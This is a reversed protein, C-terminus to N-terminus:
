DAADRDWAGSKGGSKHVLAVSEIRIGRELAKAMDYVTLAAVAAATMAEMEIGTRGVCRAEAVLVVLGEAVEVEASVDVYTLPLPHALPILEGTRKAAAIGALRAPGLVDGKSADGRIVAAATEPSMRLRAEAVARRETEPKAGVDVMRAAGESDLHTLSDDADNGRGM